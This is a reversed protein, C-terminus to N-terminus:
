VVNYSEYKLKLTQDNKELLTFYFSVVVHDTIEISVLLDIVAALVSCQFTICIQYHFQKLLYEQNSYCFPFFM